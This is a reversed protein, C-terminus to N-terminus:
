VLDLGRNVRDLKVQVILFLSATPAPTPFHLPFGHSSVLPALRSPQTPPLQSSKYVLLPNFTGTPIHLYNIHIFVRTPQSPSASLTGTQLVYLVCSSRHILSMYM